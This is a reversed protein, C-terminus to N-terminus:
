LEVAKIANVFAHKDTKLQEMVKLTEAGFGALHFVKDGFQTTGYGALDFAFVNPNAGTRNRYKGLSGSTPGGINAQMDSFIVITDYRKEAREFIANFNTAYGHNFNTIRDVLTLTSDKPNLGTRIHADNEFVMIDSHNKKFLAAGFLAGISEHTLYNNTNYGGYGGGVSGQMSGSGDIAILANGFDPVNALSVDVADSLAAVIKPYAGLENLATLYQFPFVRSKRVLKEDVLLECAIDVLSPAQEAINRLNRLLAMYGIKRTSLLDAWAEAKAETDSGAASLKSEFTDASRLKGAVLLKLAEANKETPKPHLINVADVLSLAKGEGRYKAFQYTDFKGLAAGLGKKMSNPVTRGYKAMYYALIETVDDVRVVVKDFFRKTWEEGKVLHGIEGALAHTISRNGMKDRTYIAAKAAFIPDVQSALEALRALTDNASRYYQDQVLSTVLLSALELESDKSYASHGDFNVTNELVPTRSLSQVNSFRSM